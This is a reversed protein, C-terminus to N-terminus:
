SEPHIEPAPPAISRPPLPSPIDVVSNETGVTNSARRPNVPDPMWEGHVIFKYQYRGPALRLFKTWGAEGRDRFEVGHDPVWDNFEGALLVEEPELDPHAFEVGGSVVRLGMFRPRGAAMATEWARSLIEAAEIYDRWAPAHSSLEGVTKGVSAARPFLVSRRVRVPLLLGPHAAGMREILESAYPDRSSVMTPLVRPTMQHGTHDEVVQITELVREIGQVTFPSPELPILAEGAAVLANMTLLGLNPPSDIIVVDWGEGIESLHEALREERGPVSALRAELGALGLNAPVLDLGPRAAVIAQELGPGMGTLPTHALIESISPRDTPPDIGLGMSAHGQPDMDIVLVRLERRALAAALHIATTTKGCGGKQNVLALIVGV